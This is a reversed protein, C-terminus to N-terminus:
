VGWIGWIEERYTDTAKVSGIRDCIDNSMGYQSPKHVKRLVYFSYIIHFGKGYQLYELYVDDDDDLVRLVSGTSGESVLDSV